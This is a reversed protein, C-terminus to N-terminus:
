LQNGKEDLEKFNLMVYGDKLSVATVNLPWDEMLTFQLPIQTGIYHLYKSPVNRGSIYLKTPYFRLNKPSEIKVEGTLGAPVTNGFIQTEGTITLKGPNIKVVPKFQPYYLNMYDSFAPATVMARIRTKNLHILELRREKFLLPLNFMFGKNELHLQAFRLNSILCNQGDIRVWGVRGKMVDTLSLWNLHAAIKVQPGSGWGLSQRLDRRVKFNLWCELTGLCLFIGTLILVGVRVAKRKLFGKIVLRLKDLDFM